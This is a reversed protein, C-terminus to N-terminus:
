SLRVFSTERRERQRLRDVCTAPSGALDCHRLWRLALRSVRGSRRIGVGKWHEYRGRVDSGGVSCPAPRLGKRHPVPRPPTTMADGPCLETNRTGETAPSLGGKGTRASEVQM